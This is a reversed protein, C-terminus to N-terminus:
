GNVSPMGAIIRARQEVLERASSYRRDVFMLRVFTDLHRHASGCVRSRDPYGM